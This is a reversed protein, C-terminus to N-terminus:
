CVAFDVCRLILVGGCEGFFVAGIRVFRRSRAGRILRVGLAMAGAGDLCGSCLRNMLAQLSAERTADFANESSDIFTSASHNM